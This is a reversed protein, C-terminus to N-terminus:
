IEEPPEEDYNECRDAANRRTDHPCHMSKGAPQVLDDFHICESCWQKGDLAAQSLREVCAQCMFVRLHFERKDQEPEKRRGSM